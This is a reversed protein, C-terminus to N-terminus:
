REDHRLEANRARVSRTRRGFSRVSLLCSAGSRLQIGLLPRVPDCFLAPYTRSDGGRRAHEAESHTMKQCGGPCKAHHVDERILVLRRVLKEIIQGLRESFLSAAFREM